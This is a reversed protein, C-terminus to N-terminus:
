GERIGPRNPAWLDKEEMRHGRLPHPWMWVASVVYFEPQVNRTTGPPQCKGRLSHCLGTEAAVEGLVVALSQVTELPDSPRTGRKSLPFFQTM